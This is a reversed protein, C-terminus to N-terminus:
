KKPQWNGSMFEELESEDFVLKGGIKRHPIENKHVKIYITRVKFGTIESAEQVDIFKRKSKKNGFHTEVFNTLTDIKEHLDDVREPLSNFDTKSM